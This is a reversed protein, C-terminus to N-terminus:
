CGQWGHRCFSDRQEKTEFSVIVKNQEDYAFYADDKARKLGIVEIIKTARNEDIAKFM